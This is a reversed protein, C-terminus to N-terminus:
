VPPRRVGDDKCAQDFIGSSLDVMICALASTRMRAKRTVSIQLIRQIPETPGILRCSLRRTSVERVDCTRTINIVEQTYNSRVNSLSHRGDELEAKM